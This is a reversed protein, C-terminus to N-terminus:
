FDEIRRVGHLSVDLSSTSEFTRKIQVTKVNQDYKKMILKAIKRCGLRVQKVRM